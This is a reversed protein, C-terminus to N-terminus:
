RENDTPPTVHWRRGKSGSRTKFVKWGLKNLLSAIRQLHQAYSSPPMAHFKKRKEASDTVALIDKKLDTATGTWEDRGAPFVMQLPSWIPCDELSIEDAESRNGAYAEDFAGPEWGMVKGVANGLIAFDVMRPNGAPHEVGARYVRMTACFVGFLGGLLGPLATVFESELSKGDKTDIFEARRRKPPELSVLIGRDALDSRTTLDGIGNLIIPRCAEILVEGANTHLQRERIGSGTAIMCLRDSLWAQIKSINDFALVWSNPVISTLDREDTPAGSVLVTNPDILRRAYKATTTKASGPPGSLILVPYPGNPQLAGILWTLFLMRDEDSQCNFWDWIDDVSGSEDPVPLAQTGAGRRFKVPPREVIGWGAPSLKLAKWDPGGLDIYVERDLSGAVRILTKHEEGDYIARARLNALVKGMGERGPADYGKNRWLNVLWIEFRPDDIAFNVYGKGNHVTTWAEGTPTHWLEIDGVAALFDSPRPRKPNNGAGLPKSESDSSEGTVEYCKARVVLMIVADIDRDGAEVEIAADAADWGKTVDAPPNIMRISKAGARALQTVVNTMAELGPADADPWLVVARGRLPSWDAKGVAKGGNPWTIAVHDPFLKGASDAAKEGECILVTASSRLALHDLGYLPRPPPLSKWRWAREGNRQCFTVPLIDKGGDPGDFRYVLLLTRGESDLYTWRVSPKGRKPHAEPPPPADNPVPTIPTWDGAGATPGHAPRAPAVDLPAFDDM